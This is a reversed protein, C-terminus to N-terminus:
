SPSHSSLPSPNGREESPEMNPEEPSSQVCPAESPSMDPSDYEPPTSSVFSEEVLGVYNNM